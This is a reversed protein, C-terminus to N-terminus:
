SRTEIVRRIRSPDRHTETVALVRLSTGTIRYVVMHPFVRLPIHRYDEFLITGLYPFSEILDLAQRMDTRFRAPLIASELGYYSAAQALDDAVEPHFGLTMTM